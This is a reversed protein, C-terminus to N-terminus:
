SLSGERSLAKEVFQKVQPEVNTLLAFFAEDGMETHLRDLYLQTKERGPSQMADLMTRAELLCALAETYRHQALYFVGLSRLIKGRGESDAIEETIDLAEHFYRWARKLDGLEAYLTGLNNLTRSEGKRDVESRIALAQELYERALDKQGMLFYNKGLNNLSWGEGRQDGIERYIRLAQEYYDVAQKSGGLDDFVRGLNNLTAAEGRRDGLERYIRLAEEYHKQEQEQQGWACYVWGLNNLAAGEAMRDGEEKATKLAEEYFGRAREKEGSEAYLRGLHNLTWAAERHEGTEKSVELAKELYSRSLEKRGLTRYIVGFDNCIRAKQVPTPRWKDLPLLLTYLELLVTSGGWSRLNSFINESEILSYAEQWRRAQCLQWAAEILPQIDSIKRRARGQPYSKSALQQYYRAAGRRAARLAQKNSQESSVDFHEQAYSAVIAHLQYRGDGSAQLLHQALLADLAHQIHIKSVTSDLSTLARAATLPVPERYVSFALLLQRQTENLQGTFIQDLLNRAVNGTWVHSYTSEEFFAALTLHRNRLLSALLTLAFAHGSCREVVARLDKDPAEIGLKRLLEIGETLELGGVFYEQMYTPPYERTGLPWLRTTMLVRCNCPQSNIADLWEGVGPRDALAHGTQLDLLNEFQDLVILRTGEDEDTDLINFLAMAQHQLSLNSFDPLPKDFVACLNGALDVMTVAPDITLWVAEDTFPGHGARRQEEAYRYVLAALTSKGVGALGTLVIATTDPRTLCAHVDKVAKERQQITRPDTPPPVGMIGRYATKESAAPPTASLPGTTPMQVIIPPLPSHTASNALVSPQLTNVAPNSHAPAPSNNSIPFLWQFLGVLVGTFTFIILLINSWSGQIIGQSNLIWLTAAAVLFLIAVTAIVIRKEILRRRKQRSQQTQYVPPNNSPPVAM